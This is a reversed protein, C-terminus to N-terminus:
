GLSFVILPDVKFPLHVLVDFEGPSRVGSGVFMIVFCVFVPCSLIVSFFGFFVGVRPCYLWDLRGDLPCFWPLCLVFM